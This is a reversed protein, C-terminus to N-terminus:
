RSIVVKGSAIVKNSTNVLRVIYIGAQAARLDVDLLPYGATAPLSRSYVIAGKVDFVQLNYSTAVASYYSVKFLGQNPSPFIFLRTTVSDGIVLV